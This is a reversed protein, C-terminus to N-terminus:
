DIQDALAIAAKMAETNSVIMAANRRSTDGLTEAEAIARASATLNEINSSAASETRLLISAFPAVEDGLEADFRAIEHSAEEADALVRAPLAVELDAINAPIAAQYKGAQRQAARLDALQYSAEAPTAWTLTEYEVATGGILSAV